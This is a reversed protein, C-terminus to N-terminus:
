IPSYRLLIFNFICGVGVLAIVVWNVSEMLVGVFCAVFYMVPTAIAATLFLNRAKKDWKGYSPASGSQRARRAQGYLMSGLLSLVALGGLGIAYHEFGQSKFVTVVFVLPLIALIAAGIKAKRKINSTLRTDWDLYFLGPGM